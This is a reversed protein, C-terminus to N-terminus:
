FGFRNLARELDPKRGTLFDRMNQESLHTTIGRVVGLPDVVVIYPCAGIEFKHFLVSDYAIPLDVNLRKRLKPYLEHIETNSPHHAYRSGTYGVLMFSVETSFQNSLSDLGPMKGICTSCFRNWCDLVLWRGKFDKLSLKNKSYYQVDDFYFSPCQRGVVPYKATDIDSFKPNTCILNLMLLLHIM